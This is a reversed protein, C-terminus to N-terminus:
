DAPRRYTRYSEMVIDMHNEDFAAFSSRIRRFTRDLSRRSKIRSRFRPYPHRTERDIMVLSTGNRASVIVDKPRLSAYFGREHLRALLRGFSQLLETKRAQPGDQELVEDLPVGRVEDVLIFGCHPFGCRRREGAAIVTMVPFEFRKLSCVHIYESFPATRARRGTCFMELSQAISTVLRRKLYAVGGDGEVRRIDRTENKQIVSGVDAFMFEEFSVLGLQMLWPRYIENIELTDKM